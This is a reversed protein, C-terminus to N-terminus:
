SSKSENPYYREFKDREGKGTVPYDKRLPFSGYDEPLLIRRLKPHGRFTIGYMDYAEREAWDASMWLAAASDLEPKDESVFTKVRIYINHKYSYLIYVVAFREPMDKDLYDLGCLDMLVDFDCEDRLCKLIDLIKNPKVSICTTDRFQETNIIEESFTQKIKDISQDIM